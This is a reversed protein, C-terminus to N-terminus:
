CRLAPVIEVYLTSPSPLLSFWRCFSSWPSSLSPSFAPVFVKVWDQCTSLDEDGPEEFSMDFSLLVIESADAYLPYALVLPTFLSLGVILVFHIHKFRGRVM